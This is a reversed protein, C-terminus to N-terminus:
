QEYFYLAQPKYTVLFYKNKSKELHGYRYLFDLNLEPYVRVFEQYIKLREQRDIEYSWRIKPKMQKQLLYDQKIVFLLDENLDDKLSLFFHQALADPQMGKIMGRGIKLFTHYPNLKHKSFLFACTREFIHSNYYRNLAREVIRIEELEIASIYKNQIIEYPSLEFFVYDHLTKTNSIATGQLEKLFGLQLEDAQLAFAQNFTRIFRKKDEYPLGAILDLHIVVNNKILDVNNKLKSFDQVRSVAKTTKPNTSQIGIEFRIQGRRLTKILAITEAELYDGIIEFQFVTQGNDHDRIFGLIKRMNDQNINFSRDLFKVTKVGKDFAAEIQALVSALDFYRVQKELSSLCYSCRFPCGRSAELYLVRNKFDGVLEQNHAVNCLDPLIDYTYAIKDNERYYLNSVSRIDRQGSLYEVLENFAEEGENKIIYHIRQDLFMLDPRYSAEPGGLLFIAKSPLNRIVEKVKEINWIYVSFGIIDYNDSAIKQVITETKDKITFEKWTIPVKSNAVIQFIGMAPHIYKSNIGVLLIKM